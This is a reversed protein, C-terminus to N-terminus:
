RANTAPARFVSRGGVITELVRITDVHEPDDLPSRDLIVLDALKGVELSGKDREEFHQWAADLTVARLAREVDIRQAPGIPAGSTSRRNVAAWVIRLPEIPVVPADAHLTFRLGRAAASAAPSMRAAREPGMFRDRHRDGWYYTHLVFFSPVVGLRQMRDLQDERAMQAHVLVHRADARPAERQAAEFADLADDIAADGNAHVAVQHGAAHLRVVQRILEERPLRPYGRYGPDAAPPPVHYPQTLHGTYGQISGDAVLKFAGRRVRLPDRWPFALRGELLAGAAQANPWLVLRVPVLGARALLCLGRLEREGVGGEQATTVGAAAYTAGARRVVRLAQWRTPRLLQVLPEAATEELVGDPEGSSADRRIRGGAPDPTGSAIGLRALAAGNVAALHGSIHVAAIPHRTSVGDLDARTPHRAEALLTDDYGIGVVWGGERTRAAQERLRGLLDDLRAVAGAPPPALDAVIATLGVSAFHGHADVFGPLLARGALDVVRAGRARFAALEAASGVGAIREGEV